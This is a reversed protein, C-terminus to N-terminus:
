DHTKELDRVNRSFGRVEAWNDRIRGYPSETGAAEDRLLAGMVRLIRGVCNRLASEFPLNLYTMWAKFFSAFVGNPACM